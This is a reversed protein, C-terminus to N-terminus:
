VSIEQQSLMGNTIVSLGIVFGLKSPKKHDLQQRVSHIIIRPEFQQLAMIIAAYCQLIMADGIPQDILEPLLSGYSDRMIRSGIPTSLIDVVSQQIDKIGQLTTGTQKNMNSM